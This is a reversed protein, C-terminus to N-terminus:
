RLLPNRAPEGKKSCLADTVQRGLVSVTVGVSCNFEQGTRTRVQYRTSSGDDSRSGITFDSKNMGLASATRDAIVDDGILTSACGATALALVATGLVPIAKNM